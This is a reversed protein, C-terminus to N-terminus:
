QLLDADLRQTTGPQLSATFVPRTLVGNTLMVILVDSKYLGESILHRLDKLSSSDLFIPCRLITRLMDHLYRADSAAEIKFHQTFYSSIFARALPTLLM